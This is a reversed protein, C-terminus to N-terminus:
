DEVCVVEDEGKDEGEGEGEGGGEDGGDITVVTIVFVTVPGVVVLVLVSISSGVLPSFLWIFTVVM